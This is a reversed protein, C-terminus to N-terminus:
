DIYLFAKNVSEREVLRVYHNLIPNKITMFLSKREKRKTIMIIIKGFIALMFIDKATRVDRNIIKRLFLLCGTKKATIADITDLLIEKLSFIKLRFGVAKLVKMLFLKQSNFGTM